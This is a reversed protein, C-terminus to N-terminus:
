IAYAGEKSGAIKDEYAGELEQLTISSFYNRLTESGGQWLRDLAPHACGCTQPVQGLLDLNGDTARVIDLLSIKSTDRTLYYGGHFGRVGGVLGGHKLQMLIQGIYNQSLGVRSSIDKKSMLNSPEGTAICLLIETAYQGRTTLKM